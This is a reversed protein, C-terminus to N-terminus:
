PLYPLILVIRRPRTFYKEICQMSLNAFSLVFVFGILNTLWVAANAVSLIPCIM